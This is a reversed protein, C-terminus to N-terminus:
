FLKGGIQVGPSDAIRNLRRSLTRLRPYLREEVIRKHSNVEDLVKYIDSEIEASVRARREKKYHECMSDIERTLRRVKLM